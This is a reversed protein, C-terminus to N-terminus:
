YLESLRETVIHDFWDRLHHYVILQYLSVKEPLPGTGGPDPQQFGCGCQDMFAPHYTLVVDPIAFPLESDHLNNWSHCIGFHTIFSVM